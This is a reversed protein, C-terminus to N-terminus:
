GFLKGFNEVPETEESKEIAIFVVETIMKAEKESKDIPAIEKQKSWHKSYDLWRPGIWRDKPLSEVNSGRSRM